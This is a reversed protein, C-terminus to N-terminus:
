FSLKRKCAEIPAEFENILEDLLDSFIFHQLVFVLNGVELRLGCEVDKCVEIVTERTASSWRSSAPPMTTRAVVTKATGVVFPSTYPEKQFHLMRTNDEVGAKKTSTQQRILHEQCKFEHKVIPSRSVVRHHDLVSVPSPEESEMEAEDEKEDGGCRGGHRPPTLVSPSQVDRVAKIYRKLAQLDDDCKELAGLLLKRRKEAAVETTTVYELCTIHTAAKPPSSPSSLSTQRRIEAPIAPSRPM